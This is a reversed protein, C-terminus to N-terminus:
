CSPGRDFPAGAESDAKPSECKELTRADGDFWVLRHKEYAVTREDIIRIGFHQELASGESRIAAMARQKARKSQLHGLYDVTISLPKNWKSHTLLFRVLAKSAGSRLALIRDTLAESHVALDRRFFTLYESEFIVVYQSGDNRRRHKRVIGTSTTYATSRITLEVIRLDEFKERLWELNVGGRHGLHRMLAYPAFVFVCSGDRRYHPVFHTFLVDLIDRHIQTLQVKKLTATAWPTTVVVIAATTTPLKTPAFIAARSQTVTTVPHRRLRQKM